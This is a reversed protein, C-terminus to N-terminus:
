ISFEQEGLPCLLGRLKKMGRAAKQQAGQRTCNQRQAIERWGEGRMYYSIIADREAEKLAGLAAYLRENREKTLVAREPELEKSRLKDLISQPRDFDGDHAADLSVRMEAPIERKYHDIKNQRIFENRIAVVALVSFAGKEPTYKQAARWLGFLGMEYLEQSSYRSGKSRAWHVQSWVLRVNEELLKERERATM